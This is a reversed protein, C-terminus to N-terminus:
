LFMQTCLTTRFYIEKKKYLKISLSIQAKTLQVNFVTFLTSLLFKVSKSKSSCQHVNECETRTARRLLKLHDTQVCWAVTCQKSFYLVAKDFDENKHIISHTYYLVKPYLVESHTIMQNSFFFSSNHSFYSNSFLSLACLEWSLSSVYKTYSVQVDQICLQNNCM